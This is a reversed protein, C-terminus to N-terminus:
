EEVAIPRTAELEEPHASCISLLRCPGADGALYAHGISSDFFVSDGVQLREPAYTDTHFIISGELVLAFEEGPHRILEGFEEITRCHADVIMPVFAKQLLDSAPYLYDYPRTRIDQGGGRRTISKRGTLPRSDAAPVAPHASLLTAIDIKLGHAFRLLKDYSLSSRGTEMKSLTSVPVGSRESLETLTLGQETRLSRLRAGLAREDIEASDNSTM